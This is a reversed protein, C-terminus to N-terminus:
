GVVTRGILVANDFDTFYCNGISYVVGDGSSTCVSEVTLDTIGSAIAFPITVAANYVADHKVTPVSWDNYPQLIVCSGGGCALSITYSAGRYALEASANVTVTLAQYLAANVGSYLVSGDLADTMNCDVYSKTPISISADGYKFIAYRTTSADLTLGSISGNAVAATGDASWGMFTAGTKAPNAVVFTPNVTNGSSNYYRTGAANSTVGNAVTTLTITQYYLAYLTLNATLAFTAGSAYTVGANGATAAGWGRATWGSKVPVGPAFTPNVMNGSSNYYRTGSHNATGSDTILALTITQYYLGYLTLSATLTVAANSAYVAEANGATGTGWGRATWGTKSTQSMTITPNAVNGNNYYRVRPTVTPTTTGNYFTLKVTQKFVAYLTIPNDGMVKSTLVSGSATADTRWGMFAWGSKTPTFTLPELCSAGSDVEEQYTVGSDVKYTVTNGASYVRQSGLYAKTIKAAGLYMKCGTAGIFVKAM